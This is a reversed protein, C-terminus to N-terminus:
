QPGWRREIEEAIRNREYRVAPTMTANNRLWEIIERVVVDSDPPLNGSSEAAPVDNINQEVVEIRGDAHRIAPHLSMTGDAATHLIAGREYSRGAAITQAFPSHWQIPLFADESM